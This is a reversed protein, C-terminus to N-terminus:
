RTLRMPTHWIDDELFREGDVVFGFRQYWAELRSQADLVLEATPFREVAEQMLAAAHGLARHSAATVVRSLKVGGDRCPFARLYAVIQDGDRIWAHANGPLLDRGDIDQFVCAQEVVFIESRLALIAYLDRVRIADFESWTIEVGTQLGDPEPM